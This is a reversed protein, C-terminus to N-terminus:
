YGHFEDLKINEMGVGNKGLMKTMAGVFNPTGVLYYTPNKINEIYKKIMAGNIYGTEGDWKKRSKEEQTMTPIFKYNKLELTSLEKFFPADELRRNSFFFTIKRKSQVHEEELLISRVPTVGIGGGLFVIETKKNKPLVFNGGPGLIMIIDDKSCDKLFDKFASSRMRTVITLLKQYPASAISFTRADKDKIKKGLTIYQGAIFKFDKPRTLNFAITKEAVEYRKKLCVKYINM